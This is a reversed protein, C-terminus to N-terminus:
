IVEKVLPVQTVQRLEQPTVCAIAEVVTQSM